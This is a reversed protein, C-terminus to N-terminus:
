QENGALAWGGVVNVISVDVLQLDAHRPSFNNGDHAIRLLL